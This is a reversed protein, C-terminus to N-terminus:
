RRIDNVITEKIDLLKGWLNREHKQNPKDWNYQNKTISSKVPKKKLLKTMSM